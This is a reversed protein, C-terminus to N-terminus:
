FFRTALFRGQHYLIRTSLTLLLLSFTSAKKVARNISNLSEGAVIVYVLQMQALKEVTGRTSDGHGLFVHGHCMTTSASVQCRCM